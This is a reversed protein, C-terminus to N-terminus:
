GYAADQRRKQVKWAHSATLLVFLLFVVQSVYMFSWWSVGVARWMIWTNHAVDSMIIALTFVVGARPRLFLLVAALPDLATLSTWYIRTFIPAGGYDWFLGHTTVTWVHTSTAALLCLAYASRLIAPAKMSQGMAFPPQGQFTDIAGSGMPLITGAVRLPRMPNKEMIGPNRETGGQTMEARRPFVVVCM